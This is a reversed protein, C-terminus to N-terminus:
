KLAMAKIQYSKGFKAQHVQVISSTRVLYPMDAFRPYQEFIEDVTPSKNAIWLRRSTYTKEMGVKITTLNEPSPKMWKIVTTWVQTSEEEEASM